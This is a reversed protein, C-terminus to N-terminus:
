EIVGFWSINLWKFLFTIGLLIILFIISGFIIRRCWTFISLPNPKYKMHKSFFNDIIWGTSISIIVYGIGSLIAEM